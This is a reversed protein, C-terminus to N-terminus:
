GSPSLTAFFEYIQMISIGIGDAAAIGLGVSNEMAAAGCVVASRRRTVASPGISAQLTVPSRTSGRLRLARAIRAM